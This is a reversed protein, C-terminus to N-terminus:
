IELAPNSNDNMLKFWFSVCVEESLKRVTHETDSPILLMDGANLIFEQGTGLHIAMKGQSVIGIEDYRHKSSVYETQSGTLTMADLKCNPSSSFISELKVVNNLNYILSRQEKTTLLSPTAQRSIERPIEPAASPQPLVLDNITINLIYCIKQLNNITPQSLGREVKSLFGVSLGSKEAMEQLTMGHQQRLERIMNGLDGSAQTNESM